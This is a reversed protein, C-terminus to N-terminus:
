LRAAARRLLVPKVPLMDATPSHTLVTTCDTCYLQVPCLQRCSKGIEPNKYASAKDRNLHCQSILTPPQPTRTQGNQNFLVNM